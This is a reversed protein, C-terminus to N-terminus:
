ASVGGRGGVIDDNMGGGRRAKYRAYAAANQWKKRAAAHEPCYRQKYHGTLEVRCGDESCTRERTHVRAAHPKWADRGDPRRCAQGADVGCRPCPGLRAWAHAYPDPYSEWRVTGRGTPVWRGRAMYAEDERCDVCLGGDLVRSTEHCRPCTTRTM